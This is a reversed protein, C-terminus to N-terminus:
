ECGELDGGTAVHCPLEAKVDTECWRDSGEKAAAELTTEIYSVARVEPAGTWFRTQGEAMSVMLWTLKLWTSVDMRAEHAVSRAITRYSMRVLEGSWRVTKFKAELQM